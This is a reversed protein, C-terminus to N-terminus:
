KMLIFLASGFPYEYCGIDPRKICRATGALDTADDEMWSLDAGANICPSGQRLGYYPLKTKSGLNLLPDDTWCHDMAAAATGAVNADASPEGDIEANTNDWVISNVMTGGVRYYGVPGEVGSNRVITCNEVIGGTQYIGVAYKRGSVGADGNHGGTVANDAVLCNRLTGGTMHVALGQAHMEAYHLHSCVINTIICREVLGGANIRVGLGYHIDESTTVNGITSDRITANQINLCGGGGGNRTPVGGFLNLDWVEAGGSLHLTAGNAQGGGMLTIGHVRVTPNGIRMFQGGSDRRLVIADRDGVGRIEYNVPPAVTGNVTYDGPYVTLSGGSQMLARVDEFETAATERSAYPYAPTACSADLFVDKSLVSMTLRSYATMSGATVTVSVDYVGPAEWAKVFAAATSEEVGDIQWSYSVGSEPFGVLSATFRNTAPLTVITDDTRIVAAADGQAQCEAPGMDMGFAAVRARGYIDNVYSVGEMPSAADIAASTTKLEFEGDETWRYTDSAEAVNGKGGLLSKTLGYTFSKPIGAIAFDALTSDTNNLIITNVITENGTCYVAATPKEGINWTTTNEVIACGDITVKNSGGALYLAMANIGTDTGENMYGISNRAILCGRLIGGSVFAGASCPHGAAGHNYGYSNNTIVCYETLGATQRLGLGAYINGEATCGDIVCRSIVGGDNAVGAGGGFQGLSYGSGRPSRGGTVRCNELTGSYVYVVGVENGGTGKVTVGRVIASANSLTFVRRKGSPAAIVVDRFDDTAGLVKIDSSLTQSASLQYDGPMIAVIDGATAVALAADVTQFPAAPSGDGGAAADDDVWIIGSFNAVLSMPGAVTFTLTAASPNAALPVDGTWLFLAAFPDAPTATVTLETGLLYYDQPLSTVTGGSTAVVDVRYYADWRWEVKSARVGQPASFVFSTGTGQANAVTDDFVWDGTADDMCYIKWGVCRWVITEDANTVVPTASLTQGDISEPLYSGYEPSAEGSNAPFGRVEVFSTTSDDEGIVEIEAYGVASNQQVGFGITISTVANAIFAGDSDKLIAYNSYDGSNGSAQWQYITEPALEVPTDSMCTMVSVSSISIRERGNDKWCAYIRVEKISKMTDFDFTLKKNNGVSVAAEEAANNDSGVNPRAMGNYLRADAEFPTSTETWYGRVGIARLLNGHEADVLFSDDTPYTAWSGKEWVIAASATAAMMACAAFATVFRHTSGM